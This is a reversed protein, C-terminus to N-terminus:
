PEVFVLQSTMSATAVLKGDQFLEGEQFAVTRGIRRARGRAHFSGLRAVKLFSTKLELSAPRVQRPEPLSLFHGFLVCTMTSDLMAAVIGGQVVTQSHCYDANIAFSLEATAEDAGFNPGDLALVRAYMNTWVPPAHANLREIIGAKTWHPTPEAHTNSIQTAAHRAATTEDSM